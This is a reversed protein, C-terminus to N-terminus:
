KINPFYGFARGKLILAESPRPVTLVYHSLIRTNNIIVHSYVAVLIVLFSCFCRAWLWVTFEFTSSSASDLGPWFLSSAFINQPYLSFTSTRWVQTKNSKLYIGQSTLFHCSFSILTPFFPLSFYPPLCILNISVPICQGRDGLYGNQSKQSRIMFELLSILFILESGM